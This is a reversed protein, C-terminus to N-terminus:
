ASLEPFEGEQETQSFAENLLENETKNTRLELDKDYEILVMKAKEIAKLQQTELLAMSEHCATASSVLNENKLINEQLDNKTRKIKEKLIAIEEKLRDIGPKNKENLATTSEFDLLKTEKNQKAKNLDKLQKKQDDMKNNLVATTAQLEDLSKTLINKLATFDNLLDEYYKKAHMYLEYNDYLNLNRNELGTTDAIEFDTIGISTFKNHYKCLKTNPVLLRGCKVRECDTGDCQFSEGQCEM